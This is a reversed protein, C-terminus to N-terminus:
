AGALMGELLDVCRDIEVEDNFIHTSVIEVEDNFIHTSFRIANHNRSTLDPEESYAYTGQARKILVDHESRMRGVIDGASPRDSNGGGELGITLISGSLADDDPTLHRFGDVADLRARLYKSLARGRAEIRPAGIVDHFAAAVGQGVVTAVDRTGGSGTYAAYGSHLFSPHIRGQAESRVYLLGTGKPALMWKHGSTVYADVGLAHVDVDLMGPAQAGDCVLLVDRAHMADALEALPMRVGTITDIHSVMCVRTRPTVHGVLLDVLQQADRVPTPMEAYVVEAGHHRRLYQWAVMGGGHEHDTTLIQDGPELDIGRAVANMGETTNRTLALESLDAGIFAAMRARVDEMQEIGWGYMLGAPNGEIERMTAIVADVVLQPTAGLTGCNLHTVGPNLQFERRVRRWRAGDTDAAALDAALRELRDDVSQLTEALFPTAALVGGFRRLFDGRAIGSRGVAGVAGVTTSDSAGDQGVTM